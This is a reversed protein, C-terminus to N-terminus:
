REECTRERIVKNDVERELWPGCVLERPQPQPERKLLEYAVVGGVVTPVVWMWGHHPHYVRSYYVPHHRHHHHHQALAPTALLALLVLLAKM